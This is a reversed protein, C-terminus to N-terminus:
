RGREIIKPLLFSAKVIITLVDLVKNELKEKHEEETEEGRLRKM